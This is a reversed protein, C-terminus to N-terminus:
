HIGLKMLGLKAVGLEGTGTILSIVEDIYAKICSIDEETWYDVGRVPSYGPEGKDGKGAEIEVNGANDPHVGNITKVPKLEEEIKAQSMPTGVTVGIIKRSM